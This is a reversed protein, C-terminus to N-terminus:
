RPRRLVVEVGVRQITMMIIETFGTFTRGAWTMTRTNNPNGFVQAAEAFSLEPVDVAATDSDETNWVAACAYRAGSALIIDEYEEM